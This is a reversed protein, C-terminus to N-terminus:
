LEPELDEFIQEAAGALRAKDEITTTEAREYVEHLVAEHLRPYEKFFASAGKSNLAARVFRADASSGPVRLKVAEARLEIPKTFEALRKKEVSNPAGIKAVNELRNRVTGPLTTDRVWLTPQIVERPISTSNSSAM